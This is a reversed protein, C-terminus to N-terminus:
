RFIIDISIYKFYYMSLDVLINSIINISGLQYELIMLLALIFPDKLSM